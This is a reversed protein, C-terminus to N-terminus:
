AAGRAAKGAAQGSASVAARPQCIAALTRIAARELGDKRAASAAHRAIDNLSLLGVPRNDRDVVPVRRIQKDSMLQEVADLADEPHCTFVHRAMASSVPIAQLSRGQTYAAMCIDRDTVIGVLAGDEGTVPIAGCDHEWMLQAAASLTDSPRCTVVPQSMIEQIRM